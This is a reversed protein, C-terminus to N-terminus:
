MYRGRITMILQQAGDDHIIVDAHAVANAGVMYNQDRKANLGACCANGITAPAHTHGQTYNGYIKALAQFTTRRGGSGEHGHKILTKGCMHDVKEDVFTIGRAELNLLKRIPHKGTEIRFAQLCVAINYNDNLRWYKEGGDLYSLLFNCHNSQM